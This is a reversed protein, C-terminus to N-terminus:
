IIHGLFPVVWYQDSQYDLCIPFFVDPNGAGNYEDVHSFACFSWVEQVQRSRKQLYLHIFLYIMLM